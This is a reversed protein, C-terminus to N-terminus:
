VFHLRDTQSATIDCFESYSLAKFNYVRCLFIVHPTRFGSGELIDHVCRHTAGRVFVAHTGTGTGPSEGHDNLGRRVVFGDVDPTYARAYM